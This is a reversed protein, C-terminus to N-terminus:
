LCGGGPSAVNGSWMRNILPQDCQAFVHALAIETPPGDFLVRTIASMKKVVYCAASDAQVIDEWVVDHHVQVRPPSPVPSQVSPRRRVFGIPARTLCGRNVHQQSQRLTGPRWQLSANLGELFSKLALLKM